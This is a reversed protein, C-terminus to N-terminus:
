DTLRRWIEEKAARLHKVEDEYCQILYGQDSKAYYNQRLDVILDADSTIGVVIANIVAMWTDHSLTVSIKGYKM